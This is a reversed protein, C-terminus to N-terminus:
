RRRYTKRYYDGVRDRYDTEQYADPDFAPSEKVQERTRDVHVTRDLHDVRTVTGVPLLVKRGFIWPGPRRTRRRRGGARGAARRRPEGRRVRRRPRGPRALGLPQVDVAARAM